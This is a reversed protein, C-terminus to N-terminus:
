KDGYINNITDSWDFNIKSKNSKNYKRDIRANLIAYGLNMLEGTGNQEIYDEAFSIVNWEFEDNIESESVNDIEFRVDVYIKM